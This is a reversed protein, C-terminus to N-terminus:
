GLEERKDLPSLVMTGFDIKGMCNKTLELKRLTRLLKMGKMKKQTCRVITM